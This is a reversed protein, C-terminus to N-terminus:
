ISFKARHKKIQNYYETTNYEIIYLSFTNVVHIFGQESLLKYQIDFLDIQNFNNIFNKEPLEYKGNIIYNLKLLHHYAISVFLPYSHHNINQFKSMNGIFEKYHKAEEKTVTVNKFSACPLKDFHRYSQMMPYNIYLKGNQTSNNFFKLLKRISEFRPVDQQPEFDFVLIVDSFDHSLKIKEEESDELEKLVNKIELSEDLCDNKILLDALNHLNTKYPVIEYKQSMNCKEFLRNIYKVEDNKGEVIFLIKNM